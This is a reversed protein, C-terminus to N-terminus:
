RPRLRQQSLKAGLMDFKGAERKLQAIAGAPAAGSLQTARERLEAALAHAWQADDPPHRDM